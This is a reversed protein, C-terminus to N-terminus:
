EVAEHAGAVDARDSRPVGLSDRQDGDAIAVHKRNNWSVDVRQRSFEEVRRDAIGDILKALCEVFRRLEARRQSQEPGSRAGEASCQQENQQQPGDRARV